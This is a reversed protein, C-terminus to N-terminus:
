PSRLLASPSSRAAHRAPLSGFALGVAVACGIAALAFWPAYTVPLDAVSETLPRALYAMAVGVAGGGIMVMASEALFQAAIDRGRAGVALRLGIEGRRAGFSAAQLLAIVMGAAFLSAAGVGALLTSNIGTMYAYSEALTTDVRATVGDRGQSRMLFDRIEEATEEAREPDVVTVILVTEKDAFLLTMGTQFPVFAVLGLGDRMEDATYQGAGARRVWPEVIEPTPGLVGKVTFPQGDILVSKGLPDEQSGFLRDRLTPGIVTVRNRADGDMATLWAGKELPWPLNLMVKPKDTEAQVTVEAVATDGRAVTLYGGRSMDVRAVNAVRKAISRAVDETIEIPEVPTFASDSHYIRTAAGVTIRNAGLEAFVGAVSSFAGQTLGLSMVIACVSTAAAIAMTATRLGGTHLSRAAAALTAVGFLPRRIVHPPAPPMTSRDSQSPAETDSTVRGDRLEIVRDACEVVRADHSAVVVACGREAQAKLLALVDAGAASDLAGTPEDAVLIRANGALARAVCVRQLEGGSLEGPRHRARDALGARELMAEAQRAREGSRTRLYTAPLEVNGRASLTELLEFRQFVFGIEALRLEALGNDDLRAVNRGAFWYDGTSPRELAGIVALLASKGSGSPGTICVFEGGGIGLSVDTLARVEEMDGDTQFVRGVSDLVILPFDAAKSSRTM